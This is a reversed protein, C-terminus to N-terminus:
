TNSMLSKLEYKHEETRPRVGERADVFEAQHAAMLTIPRPTEIIQEILGLGVRSIDRELEVAENIILAVALAHGIQARQRESIRDVAMGLGHDLARCCVVNQRM